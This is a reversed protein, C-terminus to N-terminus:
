AVPKFRVLKALAAFDADNIMRGGPIVMARGLIETVQTKLSPAVHKATAKKKGAAKATVIAKTLTEIAAKTNGKNSRIVKQATTAKVDGDRIMKTVEAPAANLELLDKVRQGSMGSKSAIDKESWGFDLLRKFVGAMELPTFGKGSNAVIQTFLQDAESSYRDETLVPVTKIEAGKKIALKVARLRCEGDTLYIKGDDWTVRLPTKVGVSAISKALQEIHDKNTPDNFDRGNWNPRILILAPDLRYVDTRGSAISQIGSKGM